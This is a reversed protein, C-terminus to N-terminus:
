GEMGSLKNQFDIAVDKAPLDNEIIIQITILANEVDNSNVQAFMLGLLAENNLPSEVLIEQFLAKASIYEKFRNSLLYAKKLKANLVTINHEAIENNMYGEAVNQAASMDFDIVKELEDIVENIQGSSILYNVMNMRIKPVRKDMPYESLYNQYSNFLSDHLTSDADLQIQDFYSLAISYSALASWNKINNDETLLKYYFKRANQFDNDKNFLKATLYTPIAHKETGISNQDTLKKYHAFAKPSNGAKEYYEGIQYVMDDDYITNNYQGVLMETEQAANLFDDDLKHYQVLQYHVHKSYDSTKGYKKFFKRIEKLATKDKIKIKNKILFYHAGQEWEDIPNELFKSLLGIADEGRGEIGAIRGLFYNAERAEPFETGLKLLESFDSKASNLDNSLFKKLGLFKLAKRAVSEGTLQTLKRLKTTDDKISEINYEDNLNNNQALAQASVISIFIIIFLIKKMKGEKNQTNL